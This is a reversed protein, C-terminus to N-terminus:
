NNDDGFIILAFCPAHFPSALCLLAWIHKFVRILFASNLLNSPLHLRLLYFPTWIYTLHTSMFTQAPNMPSISPFLLPGDKNRQHINSEKCHQFNKILEHPRVNNIYIRNWLFLGFASVTYVNQKSFTYINSVFFDKKKWLEFILGKSDRKEPLTKSINRSCCQVTAHPRAM